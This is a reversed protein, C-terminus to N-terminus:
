DQSLKDDLEELMSLYRSLKDESWNRNAALVKVADRAKSAPVLIRCRSFSISAPTMVGLVSTLGESLICPIGEEELLTRILHAEMLDNLRFLSILNDSAYQMDPELYDHVSYELKCEPCRKESESVEAGCAPCRIKDTM